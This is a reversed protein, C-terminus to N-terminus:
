RFVLVLKPLLIFSKLIKVSLFFFERFNQMATICSVQETIFTGWPMRVHTTCLPTSLNVWLKIVVPVTKQLWLNGWYQYYVFYSLALDWNLNFFFWGTILSWIYCITISQAICMSAAYGHPYSLPLDGSHNHM